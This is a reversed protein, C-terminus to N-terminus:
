QQIQISQFVRLQAHSAQLSRAETLSGLRRGQNHGRTRDGGVRRHRTGMTSRCGAKLSLQITVEGGLKGSGEEEGAGGSWSSTVYWHCRNGVHSISPVTLMLTLHAESNLIKWIKYFLSFEYLMKYFIKLLIYLLVGNVKNSSRRSIWSYECVWHFSYITEHWTLYPKAMLSRFSFTPTTRWLM